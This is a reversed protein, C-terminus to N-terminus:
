SFIRRIYWGHKSKLRMETTSSVASVLRAYFILLLRSNSCFQWWSSVFAFFGCGWSIQPLANEPRLFGFIDTFIQCGRWWSRTDLCQWMQVLSEENAFLDCLSWVRADRFTYSLCLSWVKHLSRVWTMVKLRLFETEM